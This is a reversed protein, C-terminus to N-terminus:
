PLLHREGPEIAHLPILHAPVDNNGLFDANSHTVVNGYDNLTLIDCISLRVRLSDARAAIAEELSLLPAFAIVVISTRRQLLGILLLCLRASEGRPPELKSWGWVSFKRWNSKYEARAHISRGM